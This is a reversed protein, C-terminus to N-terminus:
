DLALSSPTTFTYTGTWDKYSGCSSSGGTRPMTANLYLKPPSGGKLTGITTPLTTFVCEGAWYHQVIEAGAWIVTGNSQIEFRGPKKVALPYACNSFTLKSLNGAVAFSSSHEEVTVELESHGCSLLGFPDDIQFDKEGATGKLTGTYATGAPSTLGRSSGEVTLSSPTEVTYSGTLEGTSGCFFSGGTRPVSAATVDLKAGTGGTFTGLDTGSTTFVCEGLSTHMVWEAGTWTVTGNGGATAHFILKGAKKVTAAYNCGSMTFSSLDGEATAAAGHSEIKGEMASSTCSISLFAGHMSLNASAMKITSTYTTGVPSTVTTASATGACAMLAAAAVAAAKISLNIM